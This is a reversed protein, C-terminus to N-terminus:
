ENNVGEGIEEEEEPVEPSVPLAFTGPGVKVWNQRVEVTDPVWELKDVFSKEYRQEISVGPFIPDEDPIIEAVENTGETYLIYM